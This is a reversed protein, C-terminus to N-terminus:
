TLHRQLALAGPNCFFFFSSHTLFCLPPTCLPSSLFNLFAIGGHKRNAVTMWIFAGYGFAMGLLPGAISMRCFFLIIAWYDEYLEESQFFFFLLYGKLIGPVSPLAVLFFNPTISM